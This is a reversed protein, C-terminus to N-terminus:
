ARELANVDIGAQIAQARFLALVHRQEQSLEGEPASGLDMLMCFMSTERQRLFARGRAGFPDPEPKPAAVAAKVQVKERLAQVLAYEDMGVIAKFAEPFADRFTTGHRIAERMTLADTGGRSLQRQCEKVLENKSYNSSVNAGLNHPTTIVAEVLLQRPLMAWVIGHSPPIRLGRM